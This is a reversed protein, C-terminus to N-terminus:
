EGWNNSAEEFYRALEIYEPIKNVLVIGEAFITGLIVASVNEEYMKEIAYGLADYLLHKLKIEADYLSIDNQKVLLKMVHEANAGLEIKRLLSMRPM